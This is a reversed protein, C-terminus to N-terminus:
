KEKLIWCKRTRLCRLNDMSLQYLCFTESKARGGVFLGLFLLLTAKESSLSRQTKGRQRCNADTRLGERSKTRRAM